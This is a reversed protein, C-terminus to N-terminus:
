CRTLSHCEGAALTKSNCAGHWAIIGSRYLVCVWVGLYAVPRFGVVVGACECEGVCESVSTDFKVANQRYKVRDNMCVYTYVCTNSKYQLGDPNYQYVGFILAAGNGTVRAVLVDGRCCCCCCSCCGTCCCCPWSQEDRQCISLSYRM